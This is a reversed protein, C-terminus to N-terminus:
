ELKRLHHIIIQDNMEYILYIRQMISFIMMTEIENQSNSRLFEGDDIYVLGHFYKYFLLYRLIETYLFAYFICSSYYIFKM